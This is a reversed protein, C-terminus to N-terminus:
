LTVGKTLGYSDIVKNFCGVKLFNNGQWRLLTVLLTVKKNKM